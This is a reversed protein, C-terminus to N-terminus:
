GTVTFDSGVLSYLSPLIFLSLLTSSVMGGLIVIAMPHEIEYGPLDGGLVIPLLALTTTLATMLIPVLREGAGRLVLELGFGCGEETQLHRYHSVLMIGNRAAIGLVAVFGVLSGLSLVGGVSAVGIVGGVLSLPLCSFVVAVLEPRGLDSQLLVLIILVALLGLWLLRSQAAEQAEYEGLTVPYYGAEFEITSLKNKIEEAVSALDRGEVNCSVDIRRSAGERMIANPAAEIFVNAVEQLPVIGGGPVDIPLEKLASLGSRSELDAWVVVDQVAQGDVIEGVKIGGIYAGVAQRIEAESLGYFAAKESKMAVSLQPVLVQDEVKLEAVGPISSLQKSVTQAAQKLGALEPGSIRIVISGSGGSLVEKIRERLYTLVDRHLGPYGAITEKM